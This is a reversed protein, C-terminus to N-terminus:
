KRLKVMFNSYHVLIRIKLLLYKRELIKNVVIIGLNAKREFHIYKRIIQHLFLNEKLFIDNQMWMTIM